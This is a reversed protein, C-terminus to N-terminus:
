QYRQILVNSFAISYAIQGAANPHFSNEVPSVDLDNIWDDNSASCAGHNMFQTRVAQGVSWVGSASAAQSIKNNLRVVLRDAMERENDGIGQCAPEDFIGGRGGVDVVQPYGGVIIDAYPYTQRMSTLLSTLDPLIADIKANYSQEHVTCSSGIACQRILTSFGIDNGGITLTILQPSSPSTLFFASVAPLQGASVDPIKAGGCAIYGTERQFDNQMLTPWRSSGRMCYPSSGNPITGTGASYSDGPAAYMREGVWGDTRVSRSATWSGSLFGRVTQVRFQHHRGPQLYDFKWNTATVPYPLDTWSENGTALLRYSLKYGSANAGPDWNTSVWAGTTPTRGESGISMALSSGPAPGGITRRVSTSALGTNYGKSPVVRFDYTGGAALLEATWGSGSVAYPLRRWAENTNTLRMEIFMGTAGASTRSWTLNAKESGATVGPAPSTVNWGYSTAINPAATGIGIQALAESIRQAILGEGTPNPHTGDYTHNRADWGTRTAAVVVRQDPTNLQAALNALLAAYETTEANLQYAQAWVDWRNVVESVVIDIGPRAMRASNIYTQLNAITQQPNTHFTLDNSGLAIVLVNANSVAVQSAINGLEQTFSTGWKASHAKAAFTAAYYQSGETDNVNDYLDTRTGVFEVNGPATSALKRWLRYRWTYDGSSGQTISDGTILIRHAPVAEAPAAPAMLAHLGSVVIALAVLLTARRVRTM